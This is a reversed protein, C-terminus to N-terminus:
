NKHFYLAPVGDGTVAAVRKHYDVAPVADSTAVAARKHYDVAAVGDSTSVSSLSPAAIPAATVANLLALVALLSENSFRM